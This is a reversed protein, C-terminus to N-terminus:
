DKKKLFEINEVKVDSITQEKVSIKVGHEKLEKETYLHPYFAPINIEMKQDLMLRRLEKSLSIMEVEDLKEVAIKLKKVTTKILFNSFKTDNGKLQLLAMSCLRISDRPLLSM